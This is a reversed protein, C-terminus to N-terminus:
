FSVAASTSSSSVSQSVVGMTRRIEAASTGITVLVKDPNLGMAVCSAKFVSEDGVGIFTITFSNAWAENNRIDGILKKVKDASDYSSSNDRGDSCITLNSRVDIGQDELDTRYQIMNQLGLLVADYLATGSGSGKIFLYNDQLNTIPMFGSKVNIKENFTIANIVIDDKRHSNKLEKMFVEEGAMNMEKEFNSISPSVDLVATFLIVSSTNNALTTPDFNTAFSQYGELTNSM